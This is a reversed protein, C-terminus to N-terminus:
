LGVYATKSKVDIENYFNFKIKLIFCLVQLVGVM